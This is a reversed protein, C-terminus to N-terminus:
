FRWFLNAGVMADSASDTLGVGLFPAIGFSPTAQYTVRTTASITDYAGGIQPNVYRIGGVEIGLSLTHNLFFGAGGSYALADIGKSWDHQWALGGFVFAPRMVKAVNIGILSSLHDAEFEKLGTPLSLSFIATTEFGKTPLAAILRVGVGGLGFVSEDALREELSEIRSADWRLPVTVELELTNAFGYAFAGSLTLSSGSAQIGLMNQDEAAYAVSLNFRKENRALSVTEGARYLEYLRELKQDLGITEIAEQAAVDSHVLLLWCLIFSPVVIFIRM